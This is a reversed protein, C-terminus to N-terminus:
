NGAARANIAARVYMFDVLPITPKRGNQNYTQLHNLTKARIVPNAVDSNWSFSIRANNRRLHHSVNSQDREILASVLTIETPQFSQADPTGANLVERMDDETIQGQDLLEAVCPENVNRSTQEVVLLEEYGPREWISQAHATTITDAATVITREVATLESHGTALAFMRGTVEEMQEIDEGLGKRDLVTKYQDAALRLHDAFLFEYNM